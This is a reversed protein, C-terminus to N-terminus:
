GCGVPTPARRPNGAKSRWQRLAALLDEVASVLRYVGAGIAIDVGDGALAGPRTSDGAAYRRPFLAQGYADAFRNM